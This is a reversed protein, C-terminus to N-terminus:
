RLYPHCVGQREGDQLNRHQLKPHWRQHSVGQLTRRRRLAMSPLLVQLALHRPTGLDKAMARARTAKAKRAKEKTRLDGVGHAKRSEEMAKERGKGKYNGKSYPQKGKGKSNKLPCDAVQHWKSGCNFCGDDKGKGKGYYGATDDEGDKEPTAPATKPQEEPEHYDNSYDDYSWNGDEQCEYWINSDDYEYWGDDDAEEYFNWWADDEYDYWDEAYPENEEYGDGYFVETTDDNRNPSSRLALARAEQFRNYDGAVQLKIDDVTKASLGSHKFFLFFKGVENLQLGARDSAEDLRTEFEVSYEALTMKSRNIAFFRELAQTALDQDQQGFAAKLASTLFQVGSPIHNQIIAGSNLDRVEEVTLRALAADGTDVSGDPRPVRLSLAVKAARGYLRGAILPGIVEDDLNCVRYWLRLKDFYLRLPYAADGPVWGPPIDRRFEQLPISGSPPGNMTGIDLALPTWPLTRCSALGPLDNAFDLIYNCSRPHQQCLEPHLQLVQSTSSPTWTTACGLLAIDFDRFALGPIGFALILIYSRSWPHRLGVGPHLALGPIGFALVLIYRLVQSATASWLSAFDLLYTTTDQITPLHEVIM